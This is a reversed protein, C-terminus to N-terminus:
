WCDPCHFSLSPNACLLYVFPLGPEVDVSGFLGLTDIVPFCVCRYSGPGDDVKDECQRDDLTPVCALNIEDHGVYLSICLRVCQVHLYWLSLVQKFSLFPCVDQFDQAINISLLLHTSHPVLVQNSFKLFDTELLACNVLADEVMATCNVYKIGIVADEHAWAFFFKVLDDLFHFLRLQVDGDITVYHVEKSSVDGSLCVAGNM